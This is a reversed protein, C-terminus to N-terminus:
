NFVSKTASGCGEEGKMRKKKRTGLKEITM